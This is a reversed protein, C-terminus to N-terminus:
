RADVPLPFIGLSYGVDVHWVFERALPILVRGEHMFLNPKAIRQRRHLKVGRKREVGFEVRKAIAETAIKWVEVSQPGICAPRVDSKRSGLRQIGKRLTATAYCPTKAISKLSRRQKAFSTPLTATKPLEPITRNTSPSTLSSETSLFEATNLHREKFPGTTHSPM